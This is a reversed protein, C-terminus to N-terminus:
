GSASVIGSTSSKSRKLRKSSRKLQTNLKPDYAEILLREVEDLDAIPVLHFFLLGQSRLFPLLLRHSKYTDTRWRQALNISKGIYDIRGIDGSFSVMYVGPLCPLLRLDMPRVYSFLLPIQSTEYIKKRSRM